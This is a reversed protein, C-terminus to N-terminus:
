QRLEVCRLPFKEKKQHLRQEERASRGCQVVKQEVDETSCSELNSPCRRLVPRRPCSHAPSIAHYRRILM